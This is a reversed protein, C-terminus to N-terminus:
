ITKRINELVKDLNEFIKFFCYADGLCTRNANLFFFIALHLKLTITDIPFM